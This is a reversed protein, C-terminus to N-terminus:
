GRPCTGVYRTSYKKESRLETAYDNEKKTVATQIEKIHVYIHTHM